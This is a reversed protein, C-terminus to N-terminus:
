EYDGRTNRQKNRVGTGNPRALDSGNGKNAAKTFRDGTNIADRNREAFNRKGWTRVQENVDRATIPVLGQSPNRETPKFITEYSEPHGQVVKWGHRM